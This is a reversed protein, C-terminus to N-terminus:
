EGVLGSFVGASQDAGYPVDIVTMATYFEPDDTSASLDKGVFFSKELANAQVRNIPDREQACGIALAGVALATLRLMAPWTWVMGSVERIVRGSREGDHCM